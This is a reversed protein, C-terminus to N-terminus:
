SFSIGTVFYHYPHWNSACNGSSDEVIEFPKYVLTWGNKLEAPKQEEKSSKEEEECESPIRGRIRWYGRKCESM